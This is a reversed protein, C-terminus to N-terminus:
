GFPTRNWGNPSFTLSRPHGPVPFQDWMTGPGPFPGRFSFYPNSFVPPHNKYQLKESASPAEMGEKKGGVGRKGGGCGATYLPNGCFIYLHMATDLVLCWMRHM